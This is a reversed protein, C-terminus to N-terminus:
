KSTNGSNARSKRTYALCSRRRCKQHRKSQPMIIIFYSNYNKFRLANNANPETCRLENLSMISPNEHKLFSSITLNKGVLGNCNFHIVKLNRLKKIKKHSKGINLIKSASINKPLSSVLYNEYM